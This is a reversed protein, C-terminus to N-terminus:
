IHTLAYYIVYFWGCFFHLICWAISHNVTWSLIVALLGGSLDSVAAVQATIRSDSM